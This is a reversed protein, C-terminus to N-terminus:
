RDEEAGVLGGRNRIKIISRDSWCVLWDCM